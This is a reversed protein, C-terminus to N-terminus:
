QVGRRRSRLALRNGPTRGAMALVAYGAGGSLLSGLLIGLRDLGLYAEAGQEFALSAIFLSMTFGIGSVLSVGIMQPWRVGRPLEAIGLRVALGCTGAIGILKGGVLGVVIGLPVPHIVESLSLGALPVGANAFAFAPLVGFAVWPHLAHELDRLPSTGGTGPVQRGALPVFMAVAVGALTAHVGSELVAVWLAAGLLVYPARRTVGLRNLVLLVALLIGAALLPPATLQSTYFVAIVAIAGIDDFIAVSLLFAKLAPPVRDGLLSLVGLAFAIDTAAPIAWGTMADPDGRNFLAYLAAPVLMGGAAALAPLTAAARSSLHGELVERKLELGILLFFVAMLGDNIWLLLPKSLGAAGIRIEMELELLSTHLGELPSNAIVLGLVAAIMLVIGGAAELRLFEALPRVAPGAVVGAKGGPESRKM